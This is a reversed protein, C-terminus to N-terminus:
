LVNSNKGQEIEISYGRYSYIRPEIEISYGRFSYFEYLYMCQVVVVVLSETDCYM